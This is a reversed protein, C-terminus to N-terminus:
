GDEAELMFRCAGLGELEVKYKTDLRAKVTVTGMQTLLRIIRPLDKGKVVFRVMAPISHNGRYWHAEKALRVIEHRNM